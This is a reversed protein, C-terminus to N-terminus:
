FFSAVSVENKFIAMKQFTAGMCKEINNKIIESSFRAGLASINAVNQLMDSM